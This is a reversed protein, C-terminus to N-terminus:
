KCIGKAKRDKLLQECDAPCIKGGLKLCRALCLDYTCALGGKGIDGATIPGASAFVILAIAIAAANLFKM